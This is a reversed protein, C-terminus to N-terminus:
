RHTAVLSCTSPDAAAAPLPELPVCGWVNLNANKAFLVIGNWSAVYFAIVVLDEPDGTSGALLFDFAGVAFQRQLEVGVAIGVIGVCFFLELLAAFGIRNQRIGVFAAGIVAKPMGTYAPNSSRRPEIGRDLVEALNKAVKETEAVQKARAPPPASPGLATRVQSFVDRQLELLRHEALLRLYRDAAM